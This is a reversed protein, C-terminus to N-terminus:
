NNIIKYKTLQESDYIYLSQNIVFFDKILLNEIDLKKDSTFNKDFYYIENNRKFFVIGDNIKIQGINNIEKKRILIGFSNFKYIKNKTIIWCFKNNSKMDIIEGEIETSTLSFSNKINNYMEIKSSSENFVWFNNESISSVKSITKNYDSINFNIKSIESLRNDLIIMTNYDEYFLKLKMSSKVNLYSLNSYINNKYYYTINESKKSLTNNDLFYLNELEDIGILNDNVSQKSIYKLTLDFESSYISSNTYIFLILLIKMSNKIYM